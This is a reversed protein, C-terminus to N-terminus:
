IRMTTPAGGGIGGGGEGKSSYDEMHIRSAEYPRNSEGGSAYSERGGYNDVNFGLVLLDLKRVDRERYVERSRSVPEYRLEVM